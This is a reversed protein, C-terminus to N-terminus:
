FQVYIFEVVAAPRLVVIVTVITAYLMMRGWGPLRGIVRGLGWRISIADILVLSLMSGLVILMEIPNYAFLRNLTATVYNPSVFSKLGEFMNIYVYWAQSVDQVRFLVWTLTVVGFTYLQGFVLPIKFRLRKGILLQLVREINLVVGHVGGWLVFNWSGGHWMGCVLFVILTNMMAWVAGRRSGGLPIYVYDKLWESLSIHWRRWFQRVSSSWYPQKFNELLDYGFLMATGRAMDTYGSFDAYLQWSYMTMVLVLSLGKYEPLTEFVRDVVVALNNAVVLKKFLGLTFLKLGRQTQEVNWIRPSQLQPLLTTSREIPGAIFKPFFLVFTLYKGFDRESEVKRQYVDVLYGVVQFTYFSIGLPLVVEWVGLQHLATGDPVLRLLQAVWFSQYKFFILLALISSVGVALWWRKQEM